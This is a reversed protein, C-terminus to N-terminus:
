PTSAKKKFDVVRGKKIEIGEKGLLEIKKKIGKSYGGLRKDSCVVRHCPVRPAYPNKSCANGVARAANPKHLATAIQKYTTIKGRPIKKLLKWVQKEFETPM